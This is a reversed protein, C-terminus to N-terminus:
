RQFKNESCRTKKEVDWKRITGDESATYIFKNRPSWLAETIKKTHGTFTSSNSPPPSPIQSECAMKQNKDLDLWKSVDKFDYIMLYAKKFGITAVLFKKSGCNWKVCTCRDTTGLPQQLVINKGDTAGWIGFKCDAGATLVYKSHFDVDLDFISGNHGDYTGLREGNSVFWVMPSNDKGCTFLLDGDRNVRVRTIPRSHGGLQIPRM